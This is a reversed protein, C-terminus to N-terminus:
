FKPMSDWSELSHSDTVTEDGLVKLRYFDNLIKHGNIFDKMEGNPGVRRMAELVGDVTRPYLNKALFQILRKRIEEKKEFPYKAAHHELGLLNQNSNPLLLYRLYHSVWHFKDNARKIPRMNIRVKSEDPEYQNFEVRCLERDGLLGEHPNGRYYMDERFRILYPKHYFTLIDIIGDKEMLGILYNLNKAFIPSVRELTDIFILYDGEKIGTEYLIRNRSHDHRGYPGFIVNGAGLENNVGLLYSAGTDFEDADHVLACIGRIYPILPDVLEKLNTKENPGAMFCLYPKIM